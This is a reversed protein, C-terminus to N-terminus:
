ESKTVCFENGEPDACVTWHFGAIDHDRRREGGLAEVRSVLLEPDVTSLDLHLRNKAAKKESVQQFALAPGGRSIRTMWVYGPFRNKEKVDLITGWFSVMADLDNCDLMISAVRAVATRAM